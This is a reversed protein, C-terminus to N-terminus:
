AEPYVGSKEPDPFIDRLLRQRRLDRGHPLMRGRRGHLPGQVRGDQPELKRKQCLLLGHEHEETLGKGALESAYQRVLAGAINGATAIYIDDGRQALQWACSNRRDGGKVFGDTESEGCGPNSVKTVTYDKGKAVPEAAWAAPAATWLSAAMVASVLVSTIKKFKM